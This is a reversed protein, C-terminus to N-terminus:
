HAKGKSSTHALGHVPSRFQGAAGALAPSEQSLQLLLSCASAFSRARQQSFLCGRGAKRLSAGVICDGNSKPSTELRVELQLLQRSGPCQFPGKQPASWRLRDPTVATGAYRPSSCPKPNQPSPDTASRSSLPVPQACLGASGRCCPSSSCGTLVQGCGHTM